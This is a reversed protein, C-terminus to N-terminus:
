NQREPHRRPCGAAHFTLTPMMMGRVETQTQLVVDGLLTKKPAGDVFVAPARCLDCVDVRMARPVPNTM